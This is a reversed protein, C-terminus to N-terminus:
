SLQGVITVVHANTAVYGDGDLVFGSGLGGQQSDLPTGSDGFLSIVTVVGPALRDYIGRPDFGGKDGLGEVVQVRTTEVQEPADSGAAQDSSEDDEGLSCGAGVLALACVAGALTARM